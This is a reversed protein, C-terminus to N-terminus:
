KKEMIQQRNSTDSQSKSNAKQQKLKERARYEKRRRMKLICEDCYVRSLSKVEQRSKCIACKVFVKYKKKYNEM